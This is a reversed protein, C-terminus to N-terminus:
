RVPPAVSPPGAGDAPEPALPDLNPLLVEALLIWIGLFLLFGASPDM